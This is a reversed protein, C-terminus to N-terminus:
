LLLFDNDEDLIWFSLSRIGPASTFTVVSALFMFFSIVHDVMDPLLWVRPKPEGLERITMDDVVKITPLRPVIVFKVTGFLVLFIAVLVIYSVWVFLSREEDIADLVKRVCDNEHEIHRIVSWSRFVLRLLRYDEFPECIRDVKLPPALLPVHTKLWSLVFPSHNEANEVLLVQTEQFEQLIPILYNRRHIWLIVQALTVAFIVTRFTHTM